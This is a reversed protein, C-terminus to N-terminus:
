PMPWPSRSPRTAAMGSYISMVRGMYSGPEPDKADTSARLSAYNFLSSLESIKEKMSIGRRLGELPEMNPLEATFATFDAVLQKMAEMDAAYAPDDFGKYIPDLNWVENM